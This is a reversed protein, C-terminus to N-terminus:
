EREKPRSNKRCSPAWGGSAPSFGGASGVPLGSGSVNDSNSQHRMAPLCPLAGASSGMVWEGV